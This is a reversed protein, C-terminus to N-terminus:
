PVIGHRKMFALHNHLGRGRGGTGTTTTMINGDPDYWNIHGSKAKAILWGAKRASKVIARYDKPITTM